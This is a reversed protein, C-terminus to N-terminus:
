PNVPPSWGGSDGEDDFAVARLGPRASLEGPVNARLNTQEVATGADGGAMPGTNTVLGPWDRVQVTARSVPDAM